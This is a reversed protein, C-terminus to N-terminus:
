RTLSLAVHPFDLGGLAVLELERRFAGAWDHLARYEHDAVNAQDLLVLDGPRLHDDLMALAYLTSSHLDADLHVVVRGSREFGALFRPLTDQFLGKEFSVRHDDIEPLAGDVSFHGPGMTGTGHVWAEPLGEFTDFGVLRSAPDANLESWQRISDGKWVGFELYTIPGDALLERALHAFYSARDAFTPVEPQARLWRGMEWLWLFMQTRAPVPMASRIIARRVLRRLKKWNV